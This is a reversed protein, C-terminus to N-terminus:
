IHSPKCKWQFETIRTGSGGLGIGLLEELLHLGLLALPPTRFELNKYAVCGAYAFGM